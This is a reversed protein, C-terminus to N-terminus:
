SKNSPHEHNCITCSGDVMQEIGDACTCGGGAILDDSKPINKRKVGWMKFRISFNVYNELFRFIRNDGMPGVTREDPMMSVKGDEVKARGIITFSGDQNLRGLNDTQVAMVTPLNALDFHRLLGIEGVPLPTLDSSDIVDVRTWPPPIFRRETSPVNAVHERLPNEFFNTASEAMGLVNICHNPSIDLIDKALDFFDQRDVQGFRGRYGGGDGIRSGKPLKFRLGKKQCAKFFYVFAGTAGIFAVPQGSSEAQELAKVMAKIDIGSHALLFQSNAAGFRVRTEEMGQAMGMSPAMEPSPALILVQCRQGHNKEVEQLDPFLYCETMVRNASFVLEKGIKDRFIQGRVNASTGSTLNAMVAEEAPFSTVLSSKFADTPFAPIDRWSTVDKPCIGRVDCFEKYPANANYQYAFIDLAIQDFSSPDGDPGNAIMALIQDALKKQELKM